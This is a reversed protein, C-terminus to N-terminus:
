EDGAVRLCVGAVNMCRGSLASLIVLLYALPYYQTPMMELESPPLCHIFLSLLLAMSIRWLYRYYMIKLPHIRTLLRSLLFTTVMEIPFIVMNMSTLAVRRMGKDILQLNSAAEAPFVGIRNTLLIM